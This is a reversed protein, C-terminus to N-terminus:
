CVMENKDVPQMLGEVPATCLACAHLDAGAHEMGSLKKDRWLPYTLPASSCRCALGSHMCRFTPVHRGARLPFNSQSATMSTLPRSSSSMGVGMPGSTQVPYSFTPMGNLVSGSQFRMDNSYIPTDWARTQPSSFRMESSMRMPQGGARNLMMWGTDILVTM